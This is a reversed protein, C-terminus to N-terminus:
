QPEQLYLKTSKYLGPWEVCPTRRGQLNLTTLSTAEASVRGCFGYEAVFEPLHMMVFHLKNFYPTEPFAKNWALIFDLLAEDFTDLDLPKQSKMLRCVKYLKAAVDSYTEFLNIVKSHLPYGEPCVMKCVAAINNFRKLSNMARGNTQEFGSHEAMFCGGGIHEIANNFVFEMRGRPRKSGESMFKSSSALFDALGIQLQLYHGYKSTEYHAKCQEWIM